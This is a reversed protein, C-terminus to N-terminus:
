HKMSVFPFWEEEVAFNIGKVLSVEEAGVWWRLEGRGYDIEMTLSDGENLQPVKQKERSLVHLQKGGNIRYSIMNKGQAAATKKDKRQVQSELGLYLYKEATRLIRIGIRQKRSNSVSRLFSFKTLKGDKRKFSIISGEMEFSNKDTM